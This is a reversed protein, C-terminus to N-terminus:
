QLRPSPSRAPWPMVARRKSRAASRDVDVADRRAEGTGAPAEGLGNARGDHTALLAGLIVGILGAGVVALHTAAGQAARIGFYLHIANESASYATMATLFYATVKARLRLALVVGLLLAVLEGLTSAPWGGLLREGIRVFTLGTLWYVVLAVVNRGLSGAFASPRIGRLNMTIAGQVVDFLQRWGPELEDLLGVFEGGYRHRWRAPYLWVVSRILRRM